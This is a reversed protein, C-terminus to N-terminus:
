RPGGSARLKAGIFQSHSLHLMDAVRRILHEEYEHVVSDSYAARWLEELLRVKQEPSFTADIKSTFQYIDHAQHSEAEALALLEQAEAANLGFKKQVSGLVAQRESDSFNHDSRAVEVLLVAAALHVRREANAEPEGPQAAIHRDFFNRIATLM